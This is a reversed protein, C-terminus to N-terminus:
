VDVQKIGYAIENLELEDRALIDRLRSWEILVSRDRALDNFRCWTRPGACASLLGEAARAAAAVTNAFEFTIEAGHGRMRIFGAAMVTRLIRERLPGGYDNPIQSIVDSVAPPLGLKRANKPKKIWNAHEDIWEFQGTTTNIWAGEKM